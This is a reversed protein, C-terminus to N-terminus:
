PLVHIRAETNKLTKNKVFDLLAEADVYGTDIQGPAAKLTSFLDGGSAIFNNVVVSYTAAPDLPQYARGELVKASSVRSDKPKSVDLDFTIGSVYLLPNAPFDAGFRGLSFDIGDELAKVIDAGKLKLTVLTNGFPIVQYVQAVTLPEQMLDTRVGGANTIAIQAGTRARMSDAILPGPGRNLGRKMEEGVQTAVMAKLENVGAAYGEALAKLGPDGGTVTLNPQAALTAELKADDDLYFAKLDDTVAVYNTGDFEKVDTGAASKVFQVRKPEGKPNPLDYVRFWANGVVAMPAGMWSVVKGQGDFDVKLDGVVKGWEWAQAILVTNGAHDKVATPYPNRADLGLNKWDGLLTHSHGGIIIDLGTTQTALAQDLDYGLHSILVIKNVGQQTLEDVAKQVSAVPDRFTINKGPSSIFATDPTTAGIFGIPQNNFTKIVYPKPTIGALDPERSFDVNATVVPFKTQGLFHNALLPAGKAFEHNGLTAVDPKVKNWFLLDADGEYRTFYLSGQFFDGAHVLVPNAEKARLRNIVDAMQPFGGMEVYVAKGKLQDDLDLILKTQTPEFMSHTDNVHLVTLTYEPAGQAVLRFASALLLALTPILAKSSTM